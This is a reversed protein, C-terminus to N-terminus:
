YAKNAGREHRTAAGKALKAQRHTCSAPDIRVGHVLALVVLLVLRQAGGAAAYRGHDGGQGRQLRAVRREARQHLSLLRVRAGRGQLRGVVIKTVAVEVVGRGVERVVAM